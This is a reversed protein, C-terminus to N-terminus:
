KIFKKSNQTEEVVINTIDSNLARQVNKNKNKIDWVHLYKPDTKDRRRNTKNWVCLKNSKLGYKTRVKSFKRSIWSWNSCTIKQM